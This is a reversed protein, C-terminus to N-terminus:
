GRACCSAEGRGVGLSPRLRPRPLLDGGRGVGPSPRPRPKPLLDGGQRVEPSPRPFLSARAWGQAEDGAEAESSGGGRGVELESRGRWLPCMM